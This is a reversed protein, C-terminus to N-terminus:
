PWPWYPKVLILRKHKFHTPRHHSIITKGENDNSHLRRPHGAATLMTSKDIEFNLSRRKHSRKKHHSRPHLHLPSTSPYNVQINDHKRQFSQLYSNSVLRYVLIVYM